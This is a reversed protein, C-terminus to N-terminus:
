LVTFFLIGVAVYKITLGLFLVMFLRPVNYRMIGLSFVLLSIPLPLVSFGLIAYVGFKHVWRRVAYIKGLPFLSSILTSLKAGAFYNFSHSMLLAGCTLLTSLWLANGNRIGMFFYFEDMGLPVFFLASILTYFFVGAESFGTLHKFILTSIGGITLKSAWLETAILLFTLLIALGVVVIGLSFLFLRIKYHNPSELIFEHNVM